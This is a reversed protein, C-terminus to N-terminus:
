GKLRWRWLITLGVIRRSNSVFQKFTNSWKTPSASSLNFYHDIKQTSREWNRHLLIKPDFAKWSKKCYKLVRVSYFKQFFKLTVHVVNSNLRRRQLFVECSDLSLHTPRRSYFRSSINTDGNAELSLWVCLNFPKVTM